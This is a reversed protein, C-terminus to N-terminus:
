APAAHTQPHTGVRRQTSRARRLVDGSHAQNGMQTVVGTERAVQTMLRAEGISRALPKQVYVAKGLRMATVAAHCHNHDPTSVVVGDIEGAMEQFMVRYDRYRKAEPYLSTLDRMVFAWTPLEEAVDCLAVVRGGSAAMAQADFWGQMGAGIIAIRPQEGPPLPRDTVFNITRASICATGSLGLSAGAM